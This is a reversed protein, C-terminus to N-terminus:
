TPPRLQVKFASYSSTTSLGGSYAMTWIASAETVCIVCFYSIIFVNLSSSQVVYDQLFYRRKWLPKSSGDPHWSGNDSVKNFLSLQFIQFHSSSFTHCQCCLWSYWSSRSVWTPSFVIRWLFYYNYAEEPEM